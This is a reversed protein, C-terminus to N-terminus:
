FVDKIIGGGLIIDKRYFVVSQGPTVAMQPTYFDVRVRGGKDQSLWAKVEPQNYRIKIQVEIKKKPINMSVFNVDEAILGHALLCKKDGVFITNTTKDIRYVYVPKGVAIGLKDRQGITYFAIGKHQGLVNGKFDCIEGPKFAKKGLRDQIFEQYSGKPIFCIDQSERREASPLHLKKALLRVKKKKLGGLPFLISSLNEKQIKYLFYGQDKKKDKGKKLEFRRRTKSYDARAYHGTALFDAGMLKVKKLLSGFKVMRNCQVCPNPTRADLYEKVFDDIVYKQLDDGFSLVYHPIDLVQAARKAEEIAEAGCCSPRKGQSSSINFCMTVGVVKYGKKKLLAAAVSSDVGGSMAVFVTKQKKKRFM